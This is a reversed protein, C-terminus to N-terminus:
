SNFRIIEELKYKKDWRSTSNELEVIKKIDSAIGDFWQMYCKIKSKIAEDKEKDFDFSANQLSALEELREALTNLTIKELNTM